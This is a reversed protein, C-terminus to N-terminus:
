PKQKCCASSIADSFFLAIAAARLASMLHSLARLVAATICDGTTPASCYYHRCSPVLLALMNTFHMCPLRTQMHESLVTILCAIHAAHLMRGPHKSLLQAMSHQGAPFGLLGHESVPYLSQLFELLLAFPNSLSDYFLPVLLYAAAAQVTGLVTLQM